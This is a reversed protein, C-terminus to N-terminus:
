QKVADLTSARRMVAHPTLASWLAHCTGSKAFARGRRGAGITTSSPQQLQQTASSMRGQVSLKANPEAHRCVGPLQPARKRDAQLRLKVIAPHNAVAADVKDESKRHRLVFSAHVRADLAADMINKRHRHARLAAADLM